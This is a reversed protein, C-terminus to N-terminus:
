LNDKILVQQFKTPNVWDVKESHITDGKKDILYISENELQLYYDFKIQKDSKSMVIAIAIMFFGSMM